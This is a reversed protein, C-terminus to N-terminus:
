ELFRREFRRLWEPTKRLAHVLVAIMGLELAMFFPLLLYILTPVGDETIAVYVLLLLVVLIFVSSIIGVIIFSKLTPELSSKQSKEALRLYKEDEETFENEMTKLQSLAKRGLPSLVYHRDENKEILGKLQELHYNLKGTSLGLETILETYLLGKSDTGLIKIITRRMSHALAQFLVEEAENSMVVM